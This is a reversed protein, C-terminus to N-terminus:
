ALKGPEPWIAYLDRLFEKAVMRHAHRAMHGPRWPSGPAGWEPHAVTGCGNPSLPPRKHNQCQKQHVKTEAEARAQDYVKLYKSNAVAESRGRMRVLYTSFTFLVPRVTKLKGGRLLEAQTADKGPRSDPDGCGCFQWFQKLGYSYPTEEAYAPNPSLSSGRIYPPDAVLIRKHGETGEEWHYPTAIRPNGTLGLLKPFLEGTAMGPIQAAWDQVVQPTVREYEERLMKRHHEETSVAISKLGAAVIPNVVNGRDARNFASIRAKIADNLGESLARLDGLEPSPADLLPDLQNM